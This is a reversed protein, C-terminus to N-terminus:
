EKRMAELRMRIAARAYCLNTRVSGPSIGVIAAVEEVTQDQLDRLTFVIRQREPLNGALRLIWEAIDRNGALEEPDHRDAEVHTGMSEGMPLFVHERRRKARLLDYCLNVVIRYLWTTFKMEARYDGRHIWVRIFSEQVVDKAAESECLIRFALAFAYEQHREVIERFAEKDAHKCRDMLSETPEGM